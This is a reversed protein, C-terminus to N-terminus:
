AAKTAEAVEAVMAEITQPKNDILRRLLDELVRQLTGDQLWKELQSRLLNLLMQVLFNNMTGGPTPTPTPQPVPPVPVTKPPGYRRQLEQIDWPQLGDLAPNYTPNMVAVIGRNECHPLGLAHLIEHLAVMWLWITGQRKQLSWNDGLDYWQNCTKVRGCPLESEALVGGSGDIRRVGSLIRANRAQTAQTPTIGCHKAIHAYVSAFCADYEAEPVSPLAAVIAWPINGDPWACVQEAAMQLRSAPVNCFRIPNM